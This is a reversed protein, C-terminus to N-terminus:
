TAGVVAVTAGAEAVLGAQADIGEVKVQAGILERDKSWLEVASLQVRDGLAVQHPQLRADVERVEGVRGDMAVRQKRDLRRDRIARSIGLVEEVREVEVKVATRDASDPHPRHRVAVFDTATFSGGKGADDDIRFAIGNRRWGELFAGAMGQ